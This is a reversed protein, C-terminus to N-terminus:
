ATCYVFSRSRYPKVHTKFSRVECLHWSLWGTCTQLELYMWKNILKWCDHSDVSSQRYLGFISARGSISARCPWFDTELGM